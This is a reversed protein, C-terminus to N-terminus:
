GAAAGNAMDRGPWSGSGAPAELPLDPGTGFGHMGGYGDLVFGGTSDELLVLGRAIDNGRWYGGLTTAPNASGFAHLGGWGDLVYGGTGASNVAVGKAIDWGNWYAGALVAPAGGFSHVGGFGDLVYGKPSGATSSRLLVISRAIDFGKWYPGNNVHTATGFPHLGGWGDLVYGGSGDPNLAIGRAIDWGGWYPNGPLVPAGGFRHVGGYADLVYGGSSPHKAVGRALDRGAWYPGDSVTAVARSGLSYPHLGGWADLVYGAADAIRTARIKFISSGGPSDKLDSVYLNGSEDEGFTSITLDTDIMLSSSWQGGSLTLAYITGFCFDGYVYKGSLPNPPGRYRYGGIISACGGNHSYEFIPDTLTTTCPVSNDFTHAGERCRWGYNLGGVGSRQLDVEEWGEQGVDAIFLDGNLRDFGFRWPNRLGLAWILDDGDEGVFPNSSPIAYPDGGDVDIRLIKGLHLDTNQSVNLPDGAWQGDGNSIYLYGDVPSFQLQGGNHVETHPHSVTLIIKGTNPNVTNASPPDATYRAVVNDGASNTYFVYFYGNSEYDRHFATSMLGAEGVFKVISSIDLFPTTELGGDIVRVKGGLETIFLRGSGDGANTIAVVYDLGSAFPDLAVPPVASAPGVPILLFSGLVTLIVISRFTKRESTHSM